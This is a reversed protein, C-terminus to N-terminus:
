QRVKQIRLYEILAFLVKEELLEYHHDMKIRNSDYLFADLLYPVRPVTHHRHQQTLQDWCYMFFDKSYHKHEICEKLRSKKVEVYGEFINRQVIEFWMQERIAEEKVVMTTNISREQRADFAPLRQDIFHQLDEETIRWGQKKSQQYGKLKGTRLWRRVSEENSTIKLAQLKKFVEQVSYTTM